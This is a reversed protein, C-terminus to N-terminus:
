AGVPTTGRVIVGERLEALRALTFAAIAMVVDRVIGTRV